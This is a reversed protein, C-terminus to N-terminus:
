YLYSVRFYMTNDLLYMVNDQQVLAKYIVHGVTLGSHNNSDQNFHIEEISHDTNNIQNLMEITFIGNRKSFNQIPTFLVLSVAVKTNDAEVSLCMQNGDKVDFFFDSHWPKGKSLQETYDPMAVVVPMVKDGHLSILHLLSLHLQWNSLRTRFYNEILTENILALLEKQEAITESMNALIKTNTENMNALIEAQNTNTEKMGKLINHSSRNYYHVLNELNEMNKDTNELAEDVSQSHRDLSKHLILNEFYWDKVERKLDELDPLLPKWDSDKRVYAEEIYKFHYFVVSVLIVFAAFFLLNHSYNRDSSHKMLDLHRGMNNKYHKEKDKRLMKSKCGLDHYDCELKQLSCIIKHENISERVIKAGCSNPCQVVYKRCKKKHYKAIVQQHESAKCYQCYCPCESILHKNLSQRQLVKGCNSTCQLNHFLCGPDNNCHEDEQLLLGIWSCGSDKNPCYILRSQIIEDAQYDPCIEFNNSHCMPCTQMVPIVYSDKSIFHDKCFINNCCLSIQSQRCPHKCIKCIM